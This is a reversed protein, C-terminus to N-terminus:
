TFSAIAHGIAPHRSIMLTLTIRLVFARQDDAAQLLRGMTGIVSAAFAICAAILAIASQHLLSNFLRDVQAAIIAFMLVTM